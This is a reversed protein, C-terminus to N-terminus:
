KDCSDNAPDTAAPCMGANAIRKWAIGLKAPETQFRLGVSLADCETTPGGFSAAIDTFTCAKEKLLGYISNDTCVVEGSVVVSTLALFMEKLPWRGVLLGDRIRWGSASNELRGTVFGAVLKFEVMKGKSSFALGLEPLSAVLVGDNVYAKADVFRPKNYDYGTLGACGDPAPEGGGGGAGGVDVPDELSVIDVPWADTGNFSPLKGRPWCPDADLGPSPYLAVRVQADNLTGNFESVRALLSWNGAAASASQNASSLEKAFPAALAFLRATANDVGGPGDCHDGSAFAPKQCSAGDGLCTCRADLDYGVSPGQMALQPDAEGIDVTRLAAVFEVDDPAPEVTTPPDPWTAGICAGGGDAGSGGAGSGVSGVSGGGSGGGGPVLEFGAVVCSAGLWPGVAALTLLTFPFWARLAM